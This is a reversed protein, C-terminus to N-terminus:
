KILMSIVSRYILPVEQQLATNGLLRDIRKIKNKIQGSGPLFRGISSLTLAAGSTIAATVDTLANQRYQHFSSLADKFFPQCVKRVPM